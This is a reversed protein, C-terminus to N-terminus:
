RRIQRRPPEMIHPAAPSRRFAQGSKANLIQADMGTRPCRKPVYSALPLLPKMNRFIKKKESAMTEPKGRYRGHRRQSDYIMELMGSKTRGAKETGNALSLDSRTIEETM